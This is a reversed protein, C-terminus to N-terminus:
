EYFKGAYLIQACRLWPNQALPPQLPAGQSNRSDRAWAIAADLFAGITGNEWGNAGPSYPPSPNLRESEQESEWDELLAQLFSLFSEEDHVATVLDDVDTSM